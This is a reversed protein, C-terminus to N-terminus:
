RRQRATRVRRRRAEKPDIPLPRLIDVRDGDRLLTEPLIQRGFIGLLRDEAALEPHREVMGSAEVAQRAVAGEELDLVVLDQANALAYVVEVRMNTNETTFSQRAEVLAYFDMVGCEVIASRSISKM